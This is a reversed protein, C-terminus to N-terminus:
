NEEKAKKKLNEIHDRLIKEYDKFGIDEATRKTLEAGMMTLNIIKVHADALEFSAKASDTFVHMESIDMIVEMGLKICELYIGINLLAKETQTVDSEPDKPTM